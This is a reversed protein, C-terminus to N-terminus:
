ARAPASPRGRGSAGGGGRLAADFAALYTAETPRHAEVAAAQDTASAPEM